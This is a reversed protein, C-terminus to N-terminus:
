RIEASLSEEMTAREQQEGVVQSKFFQIESKMQEDLTEKALKSAIIDERYKLLLLQM